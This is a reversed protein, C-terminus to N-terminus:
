DLVNRRTIHQLLFFDIFLSETPSSRPPSYAGPSNAFSGLSNSPMISTWHQIDQIAKLLFANYSHLAKPDSGGISKLGVKSM